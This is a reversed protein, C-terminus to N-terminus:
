RSCSSHGRIAQDWTASIGLFALESSTVMLSLVGLYTGIVGGSGGFINTGGIVVASIVLFELGLGEETQVQSFRTVDVMAALGVLLGNLALLLFTTKPVDIGALVAAQPNSRIAYV